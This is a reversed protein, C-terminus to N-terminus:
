VHRRKWWPDPFTIYIDSFMPEPFISRSVAKADAWLVRINKPGGDRGLQNALRWVFRRQIEIGVLNREPFKEALGRLFRGRNFGIELAMPADRGFVDPWSLPLGESKPLVHQGGIDNDGFVRENLIAWASPGSPKISKPGRLRSM